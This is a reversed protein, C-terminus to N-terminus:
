VPSGELPFPYLGPDTSHLKCSLLSPWTLTSFLLTAGAGMTTPCLTTLHASIPPPSPSPDQTAGSPTVAAACSM